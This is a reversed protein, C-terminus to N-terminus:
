FIRWSHNPCPTTAAPRAGPHHHEVAQPDRNLLPLPQAAWPHQRRGPPETWSVWRGSTYRRSYGDAVEPVPCHQTPLSEPCCRLLGSGPVRLVRQAHEETDAWGGAQWGQASLGVVRNACPGGTARDPVPAGGPSSVAGRLGGRGANESPLM